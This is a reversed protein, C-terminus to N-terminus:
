RLLKFNILSKDLLMFMDECLSAQTQEQFIMWIARKAILDTKPDPEMALNAM